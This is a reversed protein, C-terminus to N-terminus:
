ISVTCALKVPLEKVHSAHLRTVHSLTIRQLVVDCVLMVFFCLAAATLYFFIVWNNSIFKLILECIYM